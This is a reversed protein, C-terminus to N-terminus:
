TRQRIPSALRARNSLSRTIDALVTAPRLEIDASTPRLVEWGLAKLAADRAADAAKAATSVHDRDGDTELDLKVDPWALDLRRKRGSSDVVPFQLHPEPLGASRVLELVFLELNTQTARGTPDLSRVGRRFSATGRRGRGGYRVLVDILQGRTTFGQFVMDHVATQVKWRSASAGLLLLALPPALVPVGHRHHLDRPDLRDIRRVHVGDLIPLDTGLVTIEPTPFWVGRVDFLRMASPGSAGALPGAAMTAALLEGEFTPPHAAHRYVGEHRPLLLGADIRRKRAADSAGLRDCDATTLYGRQAGAARALELDLDFM